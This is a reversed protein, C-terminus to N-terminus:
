RQRFASVQGRVAEQVAFCFAGGAQGDIPECVYGDDVGVAGCRQVAVQGGQPERQGLEWGRVGPDV